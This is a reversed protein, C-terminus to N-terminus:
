ALPDPCIATGWHWRWPTKSSLLAFTHWSRDLGRSWLSVVSRNMMGVVGCPIGTLFSLNTSENEQFKQLCIAQEKWTIFPFRKDNPLFINSIGGNKWIRGPSKPLFTLAHENRKETRFGVGGQFGVGAGEGGTLRYLKMRKRLGSPKIQLLVVHLLFLPSQPRSYYLKIKLMRSPHLM